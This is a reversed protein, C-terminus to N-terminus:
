QDRCFTGESDEVIRVGGSYLIRGHMNRKDDILLKFHGNDISLTLLVHKLLLTLGM